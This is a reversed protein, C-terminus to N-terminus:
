DVVSLSSYSTSLYCAVDRPSNLRDKKPSLFPSLVEEQHNDNSSYVEVCNRGKAKAMYCATDAQHLVNKLNTTKADIASLGISVGISLTQNHHSFRFNHILKRIRQVIKKGIELPCQYLLLAFEDGGLRAVIDTSRVHKQILKAIQSLVEDGAAHGCTDNIHKFKDLDLFCLVHHQNNHHANHIAEQVAGEFAQRNFLGTLHDHTAKWQLQHAMLRSQTVDKFVMVIGIIHEQHNYIPSASNEIGYEQGWRSILITNNGQKVVEGTRRVIEIPNEIPQRNQENVIQYIKSLPQGKAEQFRWGTLQEAVPNLYEIQGLINTTIVADGISELTIQALEKEKFLADAVLQKSAIEQKLQENAKSLEITREEVQKELQKNILYYQAEIQKRKCIEQSLLNIKEELLAAFQYLRLHHRVRALIERQNIPKLIYDIAGAEFALEVDQPEAFATIMIIPISQTSPQSKLQRCVEFGDMVPMYVDLLILDPHKNEAIELAQQGYHAVLVEYGEKSLIQSLLNLYVSTDDVILIQYQTM